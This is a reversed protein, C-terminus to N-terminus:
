NRRKIGRRKKKIQRRFSYRIADMTHNYEGIPISAKKNNWSYNRLERKINESKPDVIIQYDQIEIIDAKVSGKEKKASVINFGAKRIASTTRPENTDAVILNNKNGIKKELQKM